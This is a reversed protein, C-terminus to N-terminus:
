AVKAHLTPRTHWEHRIGRMLLASDFVASGPPFRAADDFYSSESREVDLPEVRWHFSRLELGDYCGCRASASYGLSGAEFFASAEDLSAFISSAPWATTRTATVAVRTRDDDSEFAIHYRDVREDVRFTAHHHVGPFVRGGALANMRSSTDRRPIYVGSRLEGDQQWEVAIRHAANESSIGPLWPALRPRIRTLRILCVGAVAFGGVFQPRFPPPLLAAVVDPDVRYNVLIRRDILGTV